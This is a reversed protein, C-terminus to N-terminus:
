SDPFLMSNKTDFLHYMYYGSCKLYNLSIIVTALTSLHVTGQSVYKLFM